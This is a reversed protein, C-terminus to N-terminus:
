IREKSKVQIHRHRSIEVSLSSIISLQPSAASRINDSGLWWGFGLRGYGEWTSLKIIFLKCIGWSQVWMPIQKNRFWEFRDINVLGIFSKYVFNINKSHFVFSLKLCLLTQLVFYNREDNLSHIMIWYTVCNCCSAIFPINTFQSPFLSPMVLWM